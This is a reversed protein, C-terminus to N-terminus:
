TLDVADPCHARVPQESSPVMYKFVSLMWHALASLVNAQRQPPPKQADQPCPKLEAYFTVQSWTLQTRDRLLNVGVFVLMVLNVVLHLMGGHLLTASFPTLWAPIAGAVEFGGFRAPIFGARAAAEVDLGAVMVALSVAATVAALSLTAIGARPKM